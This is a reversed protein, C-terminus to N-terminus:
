DETVPDFREGLGATVLDDVRQKPAQLSNEEASM